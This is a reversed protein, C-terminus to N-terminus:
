PYEIGESELYAEVTHVTIYDEPPVGIGQMLKAYLDDDLITMTREASSINHVSIGTTASLAKQSIKKAKRGALLQDERHAVTVNELHETRRREDESAQYADEEKLSQEYLGNVFRAITQEEEKTLHVPWLNLDRITVTANRDEYNNYDVTFITFIANIRTTNSWDYQVTVEGDQEQIHVDNAYDLLGLVEAQDSEYLITLINHVAESIGENLPLPTHLDPMTRVYTWLTKPDYRYDEEDYGDDYEPDMMYIHHINRERAHQVLSALDSFRLDEPPVDGKDRSLSIVYHDNASDEDHHDPNKINERWRAWPFDQYGSSGLHYIPGLDMLPRVTEPSLYAGVAEPNPTLPGTHLLTVARIGEPEKLALMAAAQDWGIHPGDTDYGHWPMHNQRKPPPLKDM